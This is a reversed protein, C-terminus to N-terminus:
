KTEKKPQTRRYAFRYMRRPEKNGTKPNVGERAEQSILIEKPTAWDGPGFLDTLTKAFIFGYRGGGSIIVNMQTEDDISALKFLPVDWKMHRTAIVGEDDRRTVDGEVPMLVCGLCRLWRGTYSDVKRPIAGVYSFIVETVSEREEITMTPTITLGHVIPLSGDYSAIPAASHAGEDIGQALADYYAAEAQLAMEESRSFYTPQEDLEVVDGSVEAVEQDQEHFERVAEATEEPTDVVKPQDQVRATAARARLRAKQEDTIPMNNRRNQQNV